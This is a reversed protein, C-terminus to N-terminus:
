GDRIGGDRWGGVTGVRIEPMSLIDESPGDERGPVPAPALGSASPTGSNSTISLPCKRRMGDGSRVGGRTAGRTMGDRTDDYRFM